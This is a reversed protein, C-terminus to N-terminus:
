SVMHWIERPSLLGGSHFSIRATSGPSLRMAAELDYTRLTYGLNGARLGVHLYPAPRNSRLIGRQVSTIIGELNELSGRTPVFTTVAVLFWGAIAGSIIVRVARQM